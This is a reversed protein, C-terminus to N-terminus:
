VIGMIKDKNVPGLISVAIKDTLIYEDIINYVDEMSVKDIGEIIENPSYYKGYYIQQRAINQMRGSSSELNLLLNGKLHDKSRQLEDATITNKLTKMQKLVNDIVEEYRDKNTGAYVGFVGTDYYSSLFSFVSYALGMNERIEQFLRSSFGAGFLTHILLFPYRLISNQKVGEVGICIHAEALDKQYVNLGKKFVPTNDIRESNDYEDLSQTINKNAGLKKNLINVTEDFNINGACSIIIDKPTYYKRLHHIIDDRKLSSVSEETGLVSLGLGKNGWINNYFYDHIYDDPTDETMRIEEHIINKEKEIDDDKFLSNTLIDALIDIGQEFYDNLLKVYYVTHERSTFANIDGGLRDIEIAIEKQSRKQTGKFMLHELFHSIGNNQPQEFRSGTKVWIGTVVSRLGEINEMVLPIKNEIFDKKFM